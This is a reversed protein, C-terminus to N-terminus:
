SRIQGGPGVDSLLLTVADRAAAIEIVCLQHQELSLELNERLSSLYRFGAPLLAPPSPFGDSSLIGLAEMSAEESAALADQLTRAADRLAQEAELQKPTLPRTV